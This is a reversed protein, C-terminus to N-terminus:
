LTVGFRSAVELGSRVGDEHFGNYWYAGCFHLGDHGCINNRKQQAAVMTPSFQPHAYHYAGLIKDPNIAQTNNLTVCFTTNGTLQPDLKQLINMDYTVSAPAINEGAKGSILYNWSAWALKRKPLITTDTHLVVENDSYPIASLISTLATQKAEDFTQIDLMKLAQDSHCAFIVQDYNEQKNNCTVSFGHATKSVNTVPSNLRIKHHYSLTLPDIYKNSGGVLTYWQPRNTINLLGHNNFFKLFFSLPFNASAELSTSWIAACMPLIYNQTFGDSLKHTNIFEILSINNTDEGAALHAKCIKNFKVIDLVIRWFKPSLINRRQAFLSNLTNGNYELGSSLNKVSFSMQTPQTAVGLQAMLKIFNPYTWDNYVIFGTDISFTNGDLDVNKTATHGGIYDNVEYVTIDAVKNVLYAATLGAIGTGIVAVKQKNVSQETITQNELGRNEHKETM